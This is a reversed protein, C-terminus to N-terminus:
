LKATITDTKRLTEIALQEDQEDREAQEEKEVAVQVRRELKKKSFHYESTQRALRLIRTAVSMNDRRQKGERRYRGIREVLSWLRGEPKPDEQPARNLSLLPLAFEPVWDKSLSLLRVPKETPAAGPLLGKRSTLVGMEVLRYIANKLTEKAISELYIADGEYFLTKGFLQLREMHLNEECETVHGNRGNPAFLFCGIAALWYAELFPWFLFCYFDFTERGNVIEAQALSVMGDEMQLVQQDVMRNITELAVTEVRANKYIFETKLLQSLFITDSLLDPKFAVSRQANQTGVGKVTAYLATTLIAESIFLNIVNNRYQALEMPKMAFYVPELLGTRTGILDKMLVLAKDVVLQLPMGGYDVVRGGKAVIERRLWEFRRLMEERGIGQGRLTLLITGVIATPQIVTASAIESLVRFGFAQLLLARHEPNFDPNFNIRKEAAIEEKIFDSLRYPAGIRMDIRGLRLSLLSASSVVGSLSEPQKDAGLLESVYTGGEIVKDYSIGVPVVIVDKVRKALVAELIIKLIGFRPTLLKGTRSRTGEIFFEMNYGQTLLYEIYEKVVVSYIPDESWAGRRIYFAGGKRLINGVIPMNLNDGAAITPLALGLKNIVYSLSLYDIHSQHNPLFLLSVKEQEAQLAWKRLNTVEEQKLHIGNDYLRNMVMGMFRSGYKVFTISSLDCVMTDLNQEVRKWLAKTIKDLQKRQQKTMDNEDTPTNNQLQQLAVANVVQHVRPADLLARMTSTKYDPYFVMQGIYEHIENGTRYRDKGARPPVPDLKLNHLEVTKCGLM